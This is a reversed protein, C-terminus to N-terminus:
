SSVTVLTGIPDTSWVVQANSIPLEVCGNSQPFGYANRWYGHVADGGNFYAVWPVNPVDYKTGDVDTGRMTTTRFRLYVPFTGLQTNAGPVGTNALTQFIDKGDRWVVLHEPLTESVMLYDYPRPDLQRAAVAETLAKWVHPGVIGDVTLGDQSELAMVAGQTVVNNLGASWLASLSGPINPYRWTFTGPQVIPSVLNAVQPEGDLSSAGPATGFRLPLYGLEALLEQARRMSVGAVTFKDRTTTATLGAPVTLVENAWPTLAVQPTFEVTDGHVYWVGPVSPSLAPLPAGPLPPRDLEIVIHSALAVGTAGPRPSVAVVSPLPVTTTTTTTPVPRPARGGPNVASPGPGLALLHKDSHAAASAIGVAAVVLVMASAVMAGRMYMRGHGSSAADSGRRERRASRSTHRGM